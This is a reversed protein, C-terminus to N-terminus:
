IFIKQIQKTTDTTESKKEIILNINKNPVMKLNLKKAMDLVKDNLM